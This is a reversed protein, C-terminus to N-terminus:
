CLPRLTFMTVWQICLTSNHQNKGEADMIVKSTINGQKDIEFDAADAGTLSFVGSPYSTTFTSLQSSLVARGM